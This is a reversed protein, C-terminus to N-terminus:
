GVGLLPLMSHPPKVNATGAVEEKFAMQIINAGDSFVSENSYGQTYSGAAGPLRYGLFAGYDGAGAGHIVDQLETTGADPTRAGATADDDGAGFVIVENAEATTIANQFPSTTDNVRTSTDFGSVQKVGTFSVGFLGVDQSGSMAASLSNTGSAPNVLYFAAVRNPTAASTITTVYTMNVGGYQMTSIATTTDDITMFSVLLRNSGATAYNMSIANSDAAKSASADLAIAM